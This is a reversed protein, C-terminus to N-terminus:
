PRGGDQGAAYRGRVEALKTEIEDPSLKGKEILLARM